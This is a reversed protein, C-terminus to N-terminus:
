SSKLAAMADAAPAPQRQGSNTVIVGAVITAGGLLMWRSLREDLLLWAFAVGFFPTLYMYVAVQTAELTRLGRNWIIYGIFIALVSMTLVAVWGTANLRTAAAFVGPNVAILPLFMVGGLVSTVGAIVQPPYRGSLPKALVTYLAWGIPSGLLIAAGRLNDASVRLGGNGLVLVMLFGAFAIGIGSLKRRTLTEGLLLVSFGATFVPNTASLLSALGATIYHQSYTIALNHALVGCVAILLLRRWVAGPFRPLSRRTALLLVGFCAAALEVRLLLVSTPAFTRLLYRVSVFTAGWVIAVLLLSVHTLLLQRRTV